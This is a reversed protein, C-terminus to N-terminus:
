SIFKCISSVCISVQIVMEGGLQFLTLGVEVSRTNVTKHKSFATLSPFGELLCTLKLRCLISKAIKNVDIGDTLDTMEDRLSHNTPYIERESVSMEKITLCRIFGLKRM